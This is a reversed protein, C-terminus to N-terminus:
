ARAASSAAKLHANPHDDDEVDHDWKNEDFDFNHDDHDIDWDTRLETQITNWNVPAIRGNVYTYIQGGAAKGGIGLALGLVLIVLSIKVLKKM